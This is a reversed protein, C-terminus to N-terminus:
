GALSGPTITENPELISFWGSFEISCFCVMARLGLPERNLIQLLCARKELWFVRMPFICPFVLVIEQPKSNGVDDKEAFDVSLRLLKDTDPIKEASLIKGARIEVSKLIEYNIHQM